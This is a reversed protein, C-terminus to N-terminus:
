WRTTLYSWKIVMQHGFKVSRQLLSVSIIDNFLRDTRFNRCFFIGFFKEGPPFRSIIAAIVTASRLLRIARFVYKNNRTIFSQSPDM